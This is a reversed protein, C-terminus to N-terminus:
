IGAAPAPRTPDAEIGAQEKIQDPTLRTGDSDSLYVELCRDNFTEFQENPPLHGALALAHWALITLWLSPADKQVPWGRNARLLDYKVQNRNDTQVTVAQQENGTQLVATIIPSKIM